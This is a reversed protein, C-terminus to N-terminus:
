ELKSLQFLDSIGAALVRDKPIKRHSLIAEHDLVIIEAGEGDRGGEGEEAVGRPFPM